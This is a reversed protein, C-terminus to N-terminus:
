LECAAQLYSCGDTGQYEGSWECPNSYVHEMDINPDHSRIDSQRLEM